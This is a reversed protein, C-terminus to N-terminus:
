LITSSVALIQHLNCVLSFEYSYLTCKCSPPWSSAQSSALALGNAYTKLAKREGLILMWWLNHILALTSTNMIRAFGAKSM